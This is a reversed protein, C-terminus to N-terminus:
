VPIGHLPGRLKGAAREADLARAEDLAAPNTEIVSNIAPGSRDISDIRDLYARALAESTLDGSAMRAQADAVGLTELGPDAVRPAADADAEAPTPAPAGSCGLVLLALAFPLLRRM